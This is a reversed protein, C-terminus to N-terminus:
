KVGRLMVQSTKKMVSSMAKSWKSWKYEMQGWKVGNTKVKSWKEKKSEMQRWKVGNRQM